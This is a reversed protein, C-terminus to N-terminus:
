RLCYSSHYNAWPGEQCGYGDLAQRASFSAFESRTRQSTFTTDAVHTWSYSDPLIAPRAPDNVPVFFNGSRKDKVCILQLDDEDGGDDFGGNTISHLPCSGLVSDPVEEGLKTPFRARGFLLPGDVEKTALEEAEDKEEKVASPGPLDDESVDDDSIEVKAKMRRSSPLPKRSKSNLMREEGLLVFPREDDSDNNEDDDAIAKRKIGRVPAKAAALPSAGAIATAGGAITAGANNRAVGAVTLGHAKL